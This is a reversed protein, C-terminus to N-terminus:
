NVIMIKFIKKLKHSTHMLSIFYIGAGISQNHQKGISIQANNNPVIAESILKGSPSLISIKTKPPTNYIQLNSLSSLITSNIKPAFIKQLYEKKNNTQQNLHYFSIPKCFDSKHNWSSNSCVAWSYSGTQFHSLEISTDKINKITDTTFTKQKSYIILDYSEASYVPHWQFNISNSTKITDNKEPYVLLSNSETMTSQLTINDLRLTGYNNNLSFSPRITPTIHGLIKTTPVHFYFSFKSFGNILPTIPLILNFYESKTTPYTGDGYFRVSSIVSDQRDSQYDITFELIENQFPTLYVKEKYILGTNDKPSAGSIEIYHNNNNIDHIWESPAYGTYATDKWAEPFFEGLEFDGNYLLNGSPRKLIPIKVNSSIRGTDGNHIYYLNFFYATISDDLPHYYQNVGARKHARTSLNWERGNVVGLNGQWTNTDTCFIFDCKFVKTNQATFNVLTYLQEADSFTDPEMIEPIGNTQNLVNDAWYFLEQPSREDEYKYATYTGHKLFPLILMRKEAKNILDFSKIFQPVQFFYDNASNIAYYPQTILHMYNKPDWFQQWVPHRAMSPDEWPPVEDMFGCSYFSITFRNRQDVGALISAVVGGWSVGTVGIKNTDIEPQQLLWNHALIGGAIAHYMWQDRLEQDQANFMDNPGRPGSWRHRKRKPLHGETDYTILAYGHDNFRDHYDDFAYGMGGHILIMAPFPGDGKPARYYAFIRTSDDYIPMGSYFFTRITSDESVYEGYNPYTELPIDWTKPSIAFCTDWMDVLENSSYTVISLLFIWQFLQTSIAKINYYKGFLSM